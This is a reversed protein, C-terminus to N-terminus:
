LDLEYRNSREWNAKIKFLDLYKYYEVRRIVGNSYYDYKGLIAPIGNNPCSLLESYSSIAVQEQGWSLFDEHEVGWTKLSHLSELSYNTVVMKNLVASKKKLYQASYLGINMSPKNRLAIVEWPSPDISFLIERFDRGVRTTDHMIFYYDSGFDSQAIAAFATYDIGDYPLKIYNRNSFSKRRRSHGGSMILIENKKFGADHLSRLLLPLTHPAFRKTTNIAIKFKM